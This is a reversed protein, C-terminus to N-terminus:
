VTHLLLSWFHFFKFIRSSCTSHRILLFFCTSVMLGNGPFHCFVAISERACDAPSRWAARQRREHTLVPVACPPHQSRPKAVRRAPPCCLDPSRGNRCIAASLTSPCSLSAPTPDKFSLFSAHERQAQTAPEHYLGVSPCVRNPSSLAHTM